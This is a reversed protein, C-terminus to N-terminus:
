AGIRLPELAGSGGGEGGATADWMARLAASLVRAHRPVDGFAARALAPLEARWRRRAAADSALAVAIRVYGERDCAIWEGRGAAALLSATQRSAPAQGELTVVPVGVALADCSTACGSFPFPDLAIDVDAWAALADAHTGYGSLALREPGIGLRAARALFHVRAGADDFAGAKLELVSGPCAALIAAWAALVADNVKAIRNFCGFRVVGDERAVPPPVAVAPAYCLRGCDLHVLRESHRHATHAPSTHADSILFDIAGSGTSHFYDLWSAQVPAPRASLARLRNGPSHGALDVLVDIGDDRIREVLEGDDLADVRRYGDAAARFRANVADEVSGNDYVFHRMSERDLAEFEAAFFTGVVGASFRPSLWGIRLPTGRVDRMPPRPAVPGAHRRAWDRHAAAITDADVDPAHQLAILRSSAAVADLPHAEVLAAHDDLAGDIDARELRLEARLLRAGRHRPLADLVESAVAIAETSRRQAELACASAYRMATAIRAATEADNPSEARLRNLLALAASTQGSDELAAVADLALRRDAALRPLARGLRETIGAPQAARGAAGLWHLLAGAHDPRQRSATRFAHAAEATRGLRDLAIGLNLRAGFRTPDAALAAKADAAARAPDGRDLAIAARNALVGPHAPALALARDFLMLADDSRGLQHEVAGLMQLADVHDPDIALLERYLAAAEGLAGARQRDLACRLLDTIEAM